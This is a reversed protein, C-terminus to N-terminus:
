IGKKDGKFRLSLGLSRTLHRTVSSIQCNRTTADEKETSLTEKEEIHNQIGTYEEMLDEDVDSNSSVDEEDEERVM